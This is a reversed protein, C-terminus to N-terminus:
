KNKKTKHMNAKGTIKGNKIFMRHIVGQSPDPHIIWEFIGDVGNLSGEIQYLIKRVEERDLLDFKQAYEVYHDIIDHFAHHADPKLASGSRINRLVENDIVRLINTEPEIFHIIEKTSKKKAALQKSLEAKREKYPKSKRAIKKPSSFNETVESFDVLEHHKQRYRSPISTQQIIGKREQIAVTIEETIPSVPTLLHEHGISIVRRPIPEQKLSPKITKGLRAQEITSGLRSLAISVLFDLSTDVVKRAIQKQQRKISQETDEFQVSLRNLIQQLGNIINEIKEHKELFSIDPSTASVSIEQLKRQVYELPHSITQGIENGIAPLLTVPDYLELEILKQAFESYNRKNLDYSTKFILLALEQVKRAHRNGSTTIFDVGQNAHQMLIKHVANQEENGTFEACEQPDLGVAELFQQGRPTIVFDISDVYLANLAQEVNNSDVYIITSLDEFSLPKHADPDSEDSTDKHLSGSKGTKAEQTSSVAFHRSQTLFKKKHQALMSQSKLPRIKKTLEQLRQESKQHAKEQLTSM